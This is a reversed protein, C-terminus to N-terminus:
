TGFIKLDWINMETCPKGQVSIKSGHRSGRNLSARIMRIGTPTGTQSSYEFGKGRLEM